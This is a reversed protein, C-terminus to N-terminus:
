LASRSRAKRHLRSLGCMGAATPHAPVNNGQQVSAFRGDLQFTIASSSPSSPIDVASVSSSFVRSLCRRYLISAGASDFQCYLVSDSDTCANRSRTAGFARKESICPATSLSRYACRRARAAVYAGTM